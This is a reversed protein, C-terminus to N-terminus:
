ANSRLFEAFEVWTMSMTFVPGPYAMAVRADDNLEYIDVVVGEGSVTLSISDTNDENLPRHFQKM